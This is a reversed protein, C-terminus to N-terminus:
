RLGVDSEHPVLISGVFTDPAQGMGNRSRKSICAPSGTARKVSLKDMRIIHSLFDWTRSSGQKSSKLGFEWRLGPENLFETDWFKELCADLMIPNHQHCPKSGVHQRLHSNM